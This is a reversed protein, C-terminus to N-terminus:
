TSDRVMIEFGLDIIAPGFSRKLIRDLLVKSASQGIQYRPFRLTTLPPIVCEQFENDDSGAIAIKEPIKWGRRAAELIAGTALVDGTLFIADMDRNRKMLAVLADGGSKLGPLAELMLAPDIKRQKAKLADIYGRRRESARDNDKLPLSVFGIKQYGKGILYDTMAYGAAYNSFGVSMDIPKEILNGTEVCPVAADRILKRTRPTHKTNHLVIGCVRQSLFAEVAAEEGKLTYGSDAIILDFDKALVDAVGQITEVFLSNRLSPVILGIINSRNSALAGAARNPIYGASKIASRIRKLTAPTVIDPNRLARSVTMASVGAITAVDSMKPGLSNASHRPQSQKARSRDIKKSM